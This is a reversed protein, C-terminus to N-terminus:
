DLDKEHSQTWDSFDLQPSIVEEFSSAIICNTPIDSMKIYCFTARAMGDKNKNHYWDILEKNTDVVLSAWNAIVWPDFSTMDATCYGTFYFQAAIKFWDGQEETVPNQWYEITLSKYSAYKHSLFKEQGLLIQGNGLGLQVDIAFTVDLIKKDEHDFRQITIDDGFVNRYIKDAVPRMALEQQRRPDNDFANM